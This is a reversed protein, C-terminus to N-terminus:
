VRILVALHKTVGQASMEALDGLDVRPKYHYRARTHSLSVLKVLAKYGIEDLAFVTLHHRKQTNDTADSVVYLECGPFPVLDHKKCERYLQVVGSMNGHDSLGLAPMGLRAAREVLQPVKAMGDLASYESHVHTHFWATM